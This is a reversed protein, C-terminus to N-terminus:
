SKEATRVPNANQTPAPKAEPGVKSLSPPGYPKGGRYAYIDGKGVDRLSKLATVLRLLGLQQAAEVLLPVGYDIVVLGRATPAFMPKAKALAVLEEVAIVVEVEGCRLVLEEPAEAPTPTLSSCVSAVGFYDHIQNRVQSM